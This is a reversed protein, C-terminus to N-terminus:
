IGVLIMSSIGVEEITFSMIGIIISIAAYQLGVGMMMLSGTNGGAVAGAALVGSYGRLTLQREAQTDIAM